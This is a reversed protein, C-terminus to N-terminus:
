HVTGTPNMMRVLIGAGIKSMRQLEPDTDPIQWWDELMKIQGGTKPGDLIENPVWAITQQPGREYYKYTAEDGFEPTKLWVGVCEQWLERPLNKMEGGHKKLVRRYHEQERRHGEADNSYKPFNYYAAVKDMRTFRMDSALIVGKAQVLRCSLAVMRMKRYKEENSGWGLNPPRAIEYNPGIITTRMKFDETRSYPISERQRVSWAVEAKLLANFFERNSTFEKRDPRYDDMDITTM